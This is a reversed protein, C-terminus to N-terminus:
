LNKYSKVETQVDDRGAQQQGDKESYSNEVDCQRTDGHPNGQAKPDGGCYLDTYRGEDGNEASPAIYREIENAHDGEVNRRHHPQNIKKNGLAATCSRM